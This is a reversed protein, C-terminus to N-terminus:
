IQKRKLLIYSIFWLIPAFFILVRFLSESQIKGSYSSFKVLIAMFLSFLISLVVAVAISKLVANKNFIIGFLFACSQYLITAKLIYTFSLNFTEALPIFRCESWVSELAYAVPIYTLFILLMCIILYLPFALIWKSLWKEFTSAPLNLYSARNTAERFETFISNSFLTGGLMFISIFIIDTINVYSQPNCYEETSIFMIFACVACLAIALLFFVKRHLIFERNLLSLVRTMSFEM